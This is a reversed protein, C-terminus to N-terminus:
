IAQLAQTVPELLASYFSIIILCFFFTPSSSACLLQHAFQRTNGTETTSLIELQTYIDEFKATFIRISKYKSTWRTESLLPVNPVLSRRKPSERFFKIISKITGISNRVASVANLDNVVLNLRHSSCHVFAAKPYLNRIKAQVGNDKGAMTSCGDYGQGLLKDLNLGFKQCQNIISSSIASASMDSLKIFGLFEERIMKECELDVFHVGISLQETGSIDATEDALISFGISNNAAIVLNTRLVEESINILENETRHSTYRANKASTELHTKLINDGCEIRFDYLQQVNGKGQEKGRLALDNTGCFLITSLIPFIKKRNQEIVRKISSDIQCIVQKNPNRIVKMYNEADAQSGAHWVSAIHNRASENFDKYKTFACTIFAGQVGRNVPQPIFYLIYLCCREVKFLVGAM